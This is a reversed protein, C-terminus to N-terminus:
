TANGALRRAHASSGAHDEDVHKVGKVRDDTDSGSQAGVQRRVQAQPELHVRTAEPLELSPGDTPAQPKGFTESNAPTSGLWRMCSVAAEHIM